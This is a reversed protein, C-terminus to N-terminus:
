NIFIRTKMYSWIAAGIKQQGLLSPHVNDSAYNESATNPYVSALDILYINPNSAYNESIVEALAARVSAVITNRQTDTSIPPYANGLWIKPTKRYKKQTAIINDITRKMNAKYIARFTSNWSSESVAIDNFGLGIYIDDYPFDLWGSDVLHIATRSSAGGFAKNVIRYSGGAAVISDRVIFPFYDSGRINGSGTHCYSDGLVAFVKKASLNLDNTYDNGNLQYEIYPETNGTRWFLCALTTYEQLYKRDFHIRQTGGGTPFIAIKQEYVAHLNQYSVGSVVDYGSYMRLFVVCERDAM